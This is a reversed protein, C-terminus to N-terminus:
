KQIRYFIDMSQENGSKAKIKLRDSISYELNASANPAFLEQIYSIFLKPTLYKGITVASQEVGSSSSLTLVDLGLFQRLRQTLGASQSIGLSGVASLLLNADSQGIANLPKGTILLSITETPPLPPQSFPESVLANPTGGIQIGVLQDGIKRTARIDVLPTEPPGQFILRGQEISLKQGYARYLGNSIEVVGELRLGQQPNEQVRLDGGLNGSVGFGTFGVQQGLLVRIDVQRRYGPTATDTPQQEELIVEDASVRVANTHNEELKIVAKPISMEGNLDLHQPGLALQLQPTVVAQIREREVLPLQQGQLAMSVTWDKSSDLSLSGTATLDGTGSKLTGALAWRNTGQPTLTLTGDNFGTGLDPLFASLGSLDATGELLPQRGTGSLAIGLDVRGKLEEVRTLLPDLWVLQDLTIQLKGRLEADRDNIPLILALDANGAGVITGGGTLNLRQEALDGKLRIGEFDVRTGAPEATALTMVAAPLALNVAGNLNGPLGSLRADASARGALQVTKPLWPSLLKLDLGDSQASLRVGEAQSYDATACIRNHEQELCTAAIALATRGAQIHAPQALQWNGLLGSHLTGSRIEGQWQQPDPRWGGSGQLQLQDGERSADLRYNHTQLNGWAQIQMQELRNGALYLDAADIQATYSAPTTTDGSGAFSLLLKAVSHDQFALRDGNFLAKIRPKRLSGGIEGTSSLSGKLEPYVESLDPAALLWNATIQEALLATVTLQNQGIALKLADAQYHGERYSLQGSGSLPYGRLRGDLSVIRNQWWLEGNEVGGRSEVETNLKGRWGADLYGPDIEQGQLLFEWRWGTHWSLLGRGSINGAVGNLTLSDLQLQGTDVRADIKVGYPGLQAVSEAAIDFEAQIRLAELSGSTKAQGASNLPFNLGPPQYHQRRWRHEIEATMAGPDLGAKDPNFATNIVGASTVAIPNLLQHSFQLKRLDGKITAEGKIVAEGQLDAAREQAIRWALKLKLPYPAAARVQGTVQVERGSQQIDLQDLTLGTLGIRGSLALRDIVYQQQQQIVRIDSITVQKFHLPLASYLRPWPAPAADPPTDGPTIHLGTVKLRDLILQGGLLSTLRWTGSAQEISLLLGEQQLHLGSLKIGRTFTGNLSEWQLAPSFRRAAAESLWRTGQETALLQYLAALILLSCLLAAAAGIGAWKFLKARSM